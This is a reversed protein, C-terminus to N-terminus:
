QKIKYIQRVKDSYKIVWRELTRPSCNFHKAAQVYNPNYLLYYRVALFKVQDCVHKTMLTRHKLLRYNVANYKTM